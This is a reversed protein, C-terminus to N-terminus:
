YTDFKPKISGGHCNSTGCYEHLITQVGRFKIIDNVDPTAAAPNITNSEYFSAYVTSDPGTYYARDLNAVIDGEKKCQFLSATMLMVGFFLTLAKILLVKKM